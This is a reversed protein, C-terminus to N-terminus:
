FTSVILNHSKCTKVEFNASSTVTKTTPMKTKPITKLRQAKIQQIQLYIYMNIDNNEKQFVTAFLTLIRLNHSLYAFQISM